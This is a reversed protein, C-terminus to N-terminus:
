SKILLEKVVEDLNARRGQDIAPQYKKDLRAHLEAWVPQYFYDYEFFTKRGHMQNAQEAAGLLFAARELQEAGNAASALGMICDALTIYNGNQYFYPLTERICNAMELRNNEKWYTLGILFTSYAASHKFNNKRAFALRQEFFERAKAPDGQQFASIGVHSLMISMGWEDGLGKYLNVARYFEAEAQDYRGQHREFWGLFSHVMAAYWHDGEREFQELSQRWIHQARDMQNQIFANQAIYLNACALGHEDGLERYIQAAAEFLDMRPAHLTLYYSLSGYEYMAKAKFSLLGSRKKSRSGSEALVADVESILKKLWLQAENFEAKFNWFPVLAMALKIGYEWNVSRQSGDLGWAIAVRLNPYELDFEKILKSQEQSYWASEVGQAFESYYRAHRDRVPQVEGRQELREMAYQRIIELIRYRIGSEHNESLILSKDLLHTILDLIESSGIEEDACVAEAAELTWTGYFVSLRQLVLQEPETLLEYSWDIAARLTQQRPQAARSGTTLLSL